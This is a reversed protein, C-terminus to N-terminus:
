VSVRVFNRSTAALNIAQQYAAGSDLGKELRLFAYLVLWAGDAHGFYTHAYIGPRRHAAGAVCSMAMNGNRLGVWYRPISLGVAGPSTIWAILQTLTEAQQPTPVVYRRGDAWGARIVQTWPLDSRFNQPYYPNVM